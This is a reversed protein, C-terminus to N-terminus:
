TTEAMIQQTEAIADRAFDRAQKTKLVHGAEVEFKDSARAALEDAGDISRPQIGQDRMSKYADMDKHWRAETANVNAAEAGGQRTPTASPAVSVTSVKCAFCGEVYEPHTQAHIGM